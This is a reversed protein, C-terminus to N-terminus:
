RGSYLNKLANAEIAHEYVDLTEHSVQLAQSINQLTSMFKSPGSPKEDAIVQAPQPAPRQPPPMYVFSNPPAMPAAVPAIRGKAALMAARSVPDLPDVRVTATPPEFSIGEIRGQASATSACGLAIITMAAFRTLTM